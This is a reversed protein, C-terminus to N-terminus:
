TWGRRAVTWATDSPNSDVLDTAAARLSANLTASSLNRAPISRAAEILRRAINTAGNRASGTNASKNAINLMQAAGLVGITLVVAAVMGEVLTLGAEGRRQRGKMREHM